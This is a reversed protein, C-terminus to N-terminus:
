LQAELCHQGVATHSCIPSGGTTVSHCLIRHRSFPQLLSATVVRLPCCLGCGAAPTLSGPCLPFVAECCQRLPSHRNWAANTALCTRTSTESATASCQGLLAAPVGCRHACCVRVRGQRWRLAEVFRKGAISTWFAGMWKVSEEMKRQGFFVVAAAPRFLLCHMKHGWHATHVICCDPRTLAHISSSGHTDGAAACEATRCRIAACVMWLLARWRSCHAGPRMCAAAAQATSQAVDAPCATVAFSSFM